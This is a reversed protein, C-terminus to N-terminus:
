NNNRKWKRLVSSKAVKLKCLKYILAKCANDLSQENDTIPIKSKATRVVEGTQTEVLRTTIIISSGLKMVSGIVIGYASLIKGIKMATNADALASNSLRLEKLIKDLQSREIVNYKDLEVFHNILNENVLKAYVTDVESVEFNAVIITAKRTQATVSITFIIMLLSLLIKKM